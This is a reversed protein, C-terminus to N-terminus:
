KTTTLFYNHGFRNVKVDVQVRFNGSGPDLWSAKIYLLGYFKPGTYTSSRGNLYFPYVSNETLPTYFYNTRSNPFDSDALPESAGYYSMLTDFQYPTFNGLSNGFKTDFSVNPGVLTTRFQFNLRTFSSDGLDMDKYPYSVPVSVMNGLDLSSNSTPSTNEEVIINYAAFVGNSPVLAPNITISDGSLVWQVVTDNNYKVRSAIIYVFEASSSMPIDTIFYRGATDSLCNGNGPSAIVTVGPLPRHTASDYVIGKVYAPPYDPASSSNTCGSLYVFYSIILCFFIYYIKKM